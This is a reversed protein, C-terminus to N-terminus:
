LKLMTTRMSSSQFINHESIHLIMPNAIRGHQTIAALLMAIFNNSQMSIKQKSCISHYQFDCGKLLCSILTINIMFKFYTRSM